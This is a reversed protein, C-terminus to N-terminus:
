RTSYKGRSNKLSGKKRQIDPKCVEKRFSAPVHMNKDGHKEGYILTFQGLRRLLGLSSSVEGPWCLTKLWKRQKMGKCNPVEARVQHLLCLHRVVICSLLVFSRPFWHLCYTQPSANKQSTRLTKQGFLSGSSRHQYCSFLYVRWKVYRITDITSGM